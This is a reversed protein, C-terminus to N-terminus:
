EYQWRTKNPQSRAEEEVKIWVIRKESGYHSKGIVFHMGSGQKLGDRHNERRRVMCVLLNRVAVLDQM